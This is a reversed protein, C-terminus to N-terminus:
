GSVQGVPFLHLRDNFPNGSGEPSDLLLHTLPIKEM